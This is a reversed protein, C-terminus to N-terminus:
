EPKDDRAELETVRKRLKTNDLRLTDNDASLRHIQDRLESITAEQERLMRTLNGNELFLKQNREELVDIRGQLTLVISNLTDIRQTAWDRIAKSEEWLESAESTGIKGSARRAVAFYALLPGGILGALAAIFAITSSM